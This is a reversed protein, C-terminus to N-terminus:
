PQVDDQSLPFQKFCYGGSSGLNCPLQSGAPTILKAWVTGNITDQIFKTSGDCMVVNVGSTHRSCPYPTAGEQDLSLGGNIYELSAGVKANANNWSPGDTQQQVNPQLGGDGVCNGTGGSCINDSGFFMVFNPHPTAWTIDSNSMGSGAALQAATGAAAYGGRINESLLLTTSTGDPISSATTKYDWPTDGRHTGLFMVGTKRAVGSGWNMGPGLTFNAATVQWGPPLTGQAPLGISYGPWLAFGGNVVFSLNGKGSQTTDDEPCTLIKIYTNSITANSTISNGGSVATANWPLNRNFGNYLDLQDIYPLIDVVWSYLPGVMVGNVPGSGFTGFPMPSSGSGIINAYIISNNASPPTGLAATANEGFTGANPFTNKTNLFQILALGVQRMNSACEMRRANRRAGVVAPLILSMLIGIIAIVVLLEILTFGQRRRCRRRATM